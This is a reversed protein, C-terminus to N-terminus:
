SKDMEVLFEEVTSNFQHFKQQHVNHQGDPIVILRAGKVKERILESQRFNIFTDKEGHIVLTPCKVYELYSRCRDGEKETVYYRINAEVWNRLQMRVFQESYTGLFLKRVREDWADFNQLRDYIPRDERSVEANVGWIVLRRIRDPYLAAAIVASAGGDGWGMLTYRDVRLKQLLKVVDEADQLLYDNSWQREPPRSRGYGRPDFAILTFPDKNLKDMQGSFSM